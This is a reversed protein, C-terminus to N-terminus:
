NIIDGSFFTKIEKNPLYMNLRGDCSISHFVGIYEKKGDFFKITDGLYLLLNEFKEHFPTFGDKKFIKFNKLFSSILKERFNDIDWTKNTIEFLSTSPKDIKILDEKKMNLNVGIGLYCIFNDNDEKLECLIGSLKKNDLYIDNPWKIKPKLNKDLLVEVLSLALIHSICTFHLTDKKLKFCITLFLNGEKSVWERKFRGKGFLQNKASICIIEDDILTKINEKAYEQTSSVEDLIINKLKM